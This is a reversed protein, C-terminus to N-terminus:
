AEFHELVDSITLFHDPGMEGDVVVHCGTDDQEEETTWRWPYSKGALFVAPGNEMLFDKKCVIPYHM